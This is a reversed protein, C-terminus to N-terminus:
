RAADRGKTEDGRAEADTMVAGRSSVRNKPSKLCFGDAAFRKGKLRKEQSDNQHRHLCTRSASQELHCSFLLYKDLILCM